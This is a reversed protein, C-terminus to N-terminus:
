INTNDCNNGIAQSSDRSAFLLEKSVRSLRLGLNLDKTNYNGREKIEKLAVPSITPSATLQHNLDYGWGKLIGLM